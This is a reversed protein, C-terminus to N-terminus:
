RRGAIELVKEEGVREEVNLLCEYARETDLPIQNELDLTLGMQMAFLIEEGAQEKKGQRLFVDVKVMRAVLCTDDFELAREALNLAQTLDGEAFASCAAAALLTAKLEGDVSPFDSTMIFARRAKKYERRRYALVAELFNAYLPHRYEAKLKRLLKRAQWRLGARDYLLGVRCALRASGPSAHWTSLARRLEESADPRTLQSFWLRVRSNRIVSLYLLALLFHVMLLTLRQDTSGISFALQWRAGGLGVLSLLPDGILNLGLIFASTYGIVTALFPHPRFLLAPLLLIALVSEVCAGSFLVPIIFKASPLGAPVSEYWLLGYNVDKIYGGLFECCVTTARLDLFIFLPFILFVVIRWAFARDEDNLDEKALRYRESWLRFVTNVAIVATLLAVCWLYVQNM